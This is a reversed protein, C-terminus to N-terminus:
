GGVEENFMANLAHYWTGEPRDENTSDTNLGKTFKTM